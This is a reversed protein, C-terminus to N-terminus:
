GNLVEVTYTHGHERLILLIPALISPVIHWHESDKGVRWATRQHTCMGRTPFLGGDSEQATHYIHGWAEETCPTVTICVLDCTESERSM